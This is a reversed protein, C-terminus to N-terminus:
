INLQKVTLIGEFINPNHKATIKYPIEAINEKLLLISPFAVTTNHKIYVIRLKVIYIDGNEYVDYCFVDNLEDMFDDSYDPNVGPLGYSRSYYSHENEPAPYEMYESTSEIGFLVGMDCDNMLHSIKDNDFSPFEDITILASKPIELTIEVDEDMAKGNNQLAIKLCKFNAFAKEIPAWNSAKIITEHLEKILWYKEVEDTTGKLSPGGFGAISNISNKM